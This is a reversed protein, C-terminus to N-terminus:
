PGHSLWPGPACDQRRVRSRAGVQLKTPLLLRSANYAGNFMDVSGLPTPDGVPMREIEEVADQLMPALTHLMELTSDCLTQHEAVIVRLTGLTAYLTINTWRLEIAISRMDIGEHFFLPQWQKPRGNAQDLPRVLEEGTHWRASEFKPSLRLIWNTAVRMIANVKNWKWVRELMPGATIAMANLFDDPVAPAGSILM